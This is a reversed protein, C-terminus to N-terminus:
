THVNFSGVIATHPPRSLRNPLAETRANLRRTFAPSSTFDAVSAAMQKATARMETAQKCQTAARKAQATAQKSMQEPTRRQETMISLEVCNRGSLEREGRRASKAIRPLAMEKKVRSLTAKGSERKTKQEPM